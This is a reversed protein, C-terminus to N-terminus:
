KHFDEEHECNPLSDIWKQLAPIKPFVYNIVLPSVGLLFLYVLVPVMCAIAEEVM